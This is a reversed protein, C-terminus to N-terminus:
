DWGVRVRPDLYKPAFWCVLGHAQMALAAVKRRPGSIAAAPQGSEAVIRNWLSLEQPPSLVLRVDRAREEWAQRVFLHWPMIRPASWATRGESLRTRHYAALAARTARDSSAIVLGGASLCADLESASVTGMAANYAMMALHADVAGTARGRNYVSPHNASQKTARQQSGEDCGSAM